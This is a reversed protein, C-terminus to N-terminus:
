IVTFCGKDMGCYSSEMTYSRIVEFERWVVVRGTSERGKEINYRCSKRDFCPNQGNLIDELQQFIMLSIFM